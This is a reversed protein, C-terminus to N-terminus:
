RNLDRFNERYGGPTVGEYKKFMEIFVTSNNYRLMSAIESIKCDSNELLEKARDLKIQEIYQSISIGVNKKFFHSINSISTEFYAALYKVSFNDDLYHEHIYSLIDVINRKQYSVTKEKQQPIQPTHESLSLLFAKTFDVMSEGDARPIALVESVKKEYLRAVDWLVAAATMEDMGKVLERLTQLLLQARVDDGAAVAEQLSIFEREPYANQARDANLQRQAEKYSSRLYKVDTVFSGVGVQPINQILTNIKRTLVNASEDSCVLYILIGDVVETKYATTASYETMQYTVWDYIPQNELREAALVVFFKYKRDVYIRNELCREWLADKMNMEKTLLEYLCSEQQLGDRETQLKANHDTLELFMKYRNRSCALALGFGILISCLLWISYGKVYIGSDRVIGNKSVYNTVVYGYGLDAQFVYYKGSTSLEAIKQKWDEMRWYESVYLIQDYYSLATYEEESNRGFQVSIKDNRVTYLLYKMTIDQRGYTKIPAVLVMGPSHDTRLYANCAVLPAEQEEEFVTMEMRCIDSFFLEQRMNGGSSIVVGNDRDYM